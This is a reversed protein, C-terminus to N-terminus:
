SSLKTLVSELRNGGSWKQILNGENDVQVLTHQTTVGYKKKLENETDYNVKLIVVDEPIESLNDSIDNDLARCSPCWDAMFFLVIETNSLENLIAESYDDYSQIDKRSLNDNETNNLNEQEQADDGNSLVQDMTDSVEKNSSLAYISFGIIIIIVIIVPIKKM